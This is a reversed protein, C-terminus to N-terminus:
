SSPPFVDAYVKCSWKSIVHRHCQPVLIRPHWHHLKHSCSRCLTSYKPHLFYECRLSYGFYYVALSKCVECLFLTKFMAFHSWSPRSRITIYFSEHSSYFLTCFHFSPVHLFFHLSRNPTVICRVPTSLFIVCYFLFPFWYPCGSPLAFSLSRLSVVISLTYVSLLRSTLLLRILIPSWTIILWFRSFM